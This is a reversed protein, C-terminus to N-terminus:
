KAARGKALWAEFTDPDHAAVDAEIADDYTAKDLTHGWLSFEERKRDYDTVAPGGIRHIWDLQSDEVADDAVLWTERILYNALALKACVADIETRVTVYLEWSNPNEDDFSFTATHTVLEIQDIVGQRDDTRVIFVVRFSALPLTHSMTMNKNIM